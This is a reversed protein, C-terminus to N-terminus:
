EDASGTDALAARERATVAAIRQSELGEHLQVIEAEAIDLAALVQATDCPWQEGDHQCYGPGTPFHRERIAALDTM